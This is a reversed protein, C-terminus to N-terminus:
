LSTIEVYVFDPLAYTTARSFKPFTVECTAAISNINPYMIVTAIWAAAPTAAIM